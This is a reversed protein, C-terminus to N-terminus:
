KNISSFNSHKSLYILSLFCYALFHFQLKDFLLGKNPTGMREHYFRQITLATHVVVHLVVYTILVYTVESPMDVAPYEM